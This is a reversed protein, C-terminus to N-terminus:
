MEKSHLRDLILQKFRSYGSNDFFEFVVDISYFDVSAFRSDNEILLSFKVWDKMTTLVIKLSNNRVLKYIHEVDQQVYEHHDEFPKFEIFSPQLMEVTKEFQDFSGIGAFAIIKQKNVVNVDVKNLNKDLLNKAVHKGTFINEVGLTSLLIKLKEIERKDVMDAHTLVVANARSLDKERLAGAPLRHGNEFPKRADLLLIEFNKFLQHNQYSDDLIVYKVNNKNLLAISSLRDRGVVVKTGLQLAHMYAEDGCQSPSCFFQRGDSVLLSQKKLENSGGYGRLCVAVSERDFLNVLMAVFVSKGTGGVSINGVSIIKFPVQRLGTRMKLFNVIWFVFRYFQEMFILIYFISCEYPNLKKHESTKRWLNLIFNKIM